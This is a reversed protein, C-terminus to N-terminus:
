PDPWAASSHIPVGDLYTALVDTQPLEDTACTMIDRSLVAWDARKGPTISGVDHGQFAATAAGLTYAQLASRRSLCESPRWGMAPHGDADRRTVAAHFGRLPDIPEVPADSGFALHADADELSKWAYAGKLRGPGLRDKVWGMDSTAFLPQVSAIVGLSGFRPLDDPSLIQAHEIRPRRMPADCDDMAAEYADLVLRNARDGIAHTNVQFGCEVATKVHDRFAGEDHLLLGRNGPDDTYDDLLAAGRSGLAGDIFFKVSEVDLRGSAHHLPGHECFHDFTDGRGDIMAYLRLPFSGDDIFRRFRRIQSHSVGADHLGTIGHRATHDLATALAEDREDDSASPIQDAVLDMATDVLVGTPRGHADRVIHGGDPDSMTRLRDLGVTRKLAATNAWGAHVDTRTLWVPRHPFAADLPKRRPGSPGWDTEDWGHGRLWADDPPAHRDVFAQLQEVVANPSDTETLDARVLSLGLELLHAHADIFGPVVPQGEADIRRADPYADLVADDTGVARFRGDQVAFASATSRKPDVTYVQANHLVLDAPAPM